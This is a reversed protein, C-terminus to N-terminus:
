LNIWQALIEAIKEHGLQNPHGSNPWIYRNKSTYLYDIISQSTNIQGDLFYDVIMTCHIKSQDIEPWLNIKEWGWIYRDTIGHFKCLSQLSILSTNIRYNVLYDTHIHTYWFKDEPHTPNLHIELNQDSNKWILDRDPSTLFFVALIESTNIGCSQAFRIAQNFQVILHPISTSPKAFNKFQLSKNEALLEIFTKDGPHLESGQPWSDGFGFLYKM